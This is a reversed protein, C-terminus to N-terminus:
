GYIWPRVSRDAEHFANIRDKDRLTLGIPDLGEVLLRKAYAGIEFGARRGGFAV